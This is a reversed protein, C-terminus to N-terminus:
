QDELSQGHKLVPSGRAPLPQHGAQQVPGFIGVDLQTQSEFGFAYQEGELHQDSLYHVTLELQVTVFSEHVHVFVFQGDPQLHGVFEDYSTPIGIFMHSHLDDLSGRDLSTQGAKLQLSFQGHRIFPSGLAPSTQGDYQMEFASSVISHIHSNPDEELQGHRSTSSGLPSDTHLYISISGDSGSGVSGIIGSGVSFPGSVSYSYSYPLPDFSSSDYYSSDVVNLIIQIIIITIPIIVTATIATIRIKTKLDIFGKMPFLNKQVSMIMQQSKYKLNTLQIM